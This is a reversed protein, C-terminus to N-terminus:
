FPAGLPRKSSRQGALHRSGCLDDLMEMKEKIQFHQCTTFVAMKTAVKLYKTTTTLSYPWGTQEAM